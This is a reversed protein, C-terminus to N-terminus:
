FVTRHLAWIKKLVSKFIVRGAKNKQSYCDHADLFHFDSKQSLFLFDLQPLVLWQGIKKLVLV